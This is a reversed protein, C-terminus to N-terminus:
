EPVLFSLHLEAHRLHLARWHEPTLKGFFAHPKTPADHSLRELARRLGDLAAAATVNSRPQFKEMGKPLKFGAPLGKSLMSRKLLPAILKRAFWPAPPASGAFSEDISRGLHDVIEAATWNGLSRHPQSIVREAEVLVQEFTEFRLTRRGAVKGTEVAM